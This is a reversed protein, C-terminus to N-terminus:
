STDHYRDCDYCDWLAASPLELLTGRARLPNTWVPPFKPVQRISSRM